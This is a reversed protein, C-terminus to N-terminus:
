SAARRGSTPRARSQHCAEPLCNIASSATVPPQRRPPTALSAAVALPALLGLFMWLANHYSGWWHRCCGMLFPGASSGAVALTQATGRIKGVHAAGFYRIWLTAGVSNLGGQCVGWFLYIERGGSPRRRWCSLPWQWGRSGGGGSASQTPARDSLLGGILQGCAMATFLGTLAFDAESHGIGGEALLGHANFVLGTGVLALTSLTGSMLWFARTRVAEALELDVFPGSAPREADGSVHKGVDGPSPDSRNHPTDNPGPGLQDGDPLLGVDEPRSRYTFLLLPLMVAWVIAGMVVYAQRWGCADVLWRILPPLQAMALIIGISALGTVTGLRRRFWMGLTNAALLSLAGQGLLRLLFFAVLLGGIGQVTSMYWCAAGFLLVVLTM